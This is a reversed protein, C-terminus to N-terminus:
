EYLVVTHTEVSKKVDIVRQNTSGKYKLTIDKLNEEFKGDIIVDIFPLVESKLDDKLIEEFLYGTWLWISKTAAFTKRYEQLLPLIGDVNDLPDGGLLSLGAIYKNKSKEIIYKQTELTFPEGNKFNWTEPQFCGKCHHTCGSTFLSLRLGPGNAVDNFKIKSYYM